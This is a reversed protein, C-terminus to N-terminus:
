GAPPSRREPGRRRELALRAAEEVEFAAEAGQPAAPQSATQRAPVTSGGSDQAPRVRAADGLSTTSARPRPCHGATPPRRGTRLGLAEDHFARVLHHARQGEARSRETPMCGRRSSRASMSRAMSRRGRSRRAPRPAPRPRGRHGPGPRRPSRLCRRSAAGPPPAEAGGARPAPHQGLGALGALLQADVQRRDAGRGDFAGGGGAERPDRPLGSAHQHDVALLSIRSASAHPRNTTPTAGHVSSGRRSLSSRVAM